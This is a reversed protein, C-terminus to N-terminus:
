CCGYYVSDNLPAWEALHNRFNLQFQREDAGQAFVSLGWLLLGCCTLCTKLM